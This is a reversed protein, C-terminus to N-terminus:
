KVIQFFKAISLLQKTIYAGIRGAVYPGSYDWVDSAQIGSGEILAGTTAQAIFGSVFTTEAIPFQVTLNPLRAVLNGGSVIALEQAPGAGDEFAVRWGDQLTVTPVTFEGTGLDDKGGASIMTNLDLSHPEDEYDRFQDYISQVTITRGDVAPLTAVKTFRNFQLPM